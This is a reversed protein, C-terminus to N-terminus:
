TTRHDLRHECYACRDASLCRSGTSNRGRRKAWCALDARTPLNELNSEKITLHLALALPAVSIRVLPLVLVLCPVVLYWPALEAPVLWHILAMMYAGTLLWGVLLWALVPLDVSRRRRLGGLSWGALALKWVAAEGLLWPVAVWLDAHHEPHM